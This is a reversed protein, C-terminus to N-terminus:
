TVSTGGVVYKWGGCATGLTVELRSARPVHGGTRAPMTAALNHDHDGVKTKFTPHIGCIPTQSPINFVMWWYREPGNPTNEYWSRVREGTTVEVVPNNLRFTKGLEQEYYRQAELMVRTIGDVYRQDHPVDAPVVLHVRVTGTPPAVAAGTPTAQAASSWTLSGALLAAAFPVVVRTFRTM